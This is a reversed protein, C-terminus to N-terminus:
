LSISWVCYEGNKYFVNECLTRKIIIQRKNTLFTRESVLSLLRQPDHLHALKIIKEGFVLFSM